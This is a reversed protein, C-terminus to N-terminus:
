AVAAASARNFSAKSLSAYQHPTDHLVWIPQQVKEAAYAAEAKSQFAAAPELRYRKAFNLREAAADQLFMPGLHRAVIVNPCKCCVAQCCVSNSNVGDAPAEGTLVYRDCLSRRSCAQVALAATEPRLIGSKNAFKSGSVDDHLVDCRQKTEPNVSNESVQGRDPVICLPLTYWRTCDTGRMDSIPKPQNAVGVVFALWSEGDIIFCGPHRAQSGVGVATVSVPPAAIHLHPPELDRALNRFSTEGSSNFPASFGGHTSHSM